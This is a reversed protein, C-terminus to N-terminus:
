RISQGNAKIGDESFSIESLFQDVEPGPKAFAMMMGLAMGAQMQDILGLEVLQNALTSLGKIDINIAGLPMPIPGDNDFTAAGDAQISTGAIAFLIQNIDLSHILGFTMPDGGSIIGAMADIQVLAELNIDIQAPDRSITQDPDIMSWLGEGVALDALFIRLRAEDPVDKSNFPIEAQMLMEDLSLDFPPLPVGAGPLVNLELGTSRIDYVLTGDIMEINAASAEVSETYQLNMGEGEFTSEGTSKGTTLRLYASKSGDLYGIMDEDTEPIDMAFSMSTPGSQGSGMQTINDTTIDYELDIQSIDFSGEVYMDEKSYLFNFNISDLDAVLLRFEASEPSGGNVILSDAVFTVTIDETSMAERLLANTTLTLDSSIVDFAFDVDEDRGSINITEAITFTVDAPDTASPLGKIWDTAFTFEGDPAEIVFNTYKVSGDAGIIREDYSVAVGDDMMGRVMLDLTTELQNQAISYSASSIIAIATFGSIIRQM